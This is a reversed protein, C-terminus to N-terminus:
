GTQKGGKVPDRNAAIATLALDLDIRGKADPIILGERVMTHVRQRSINLKKALEARTIKM